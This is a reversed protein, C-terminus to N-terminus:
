RLWSKLDDDTDLIGDRGASWAVIEEGSIEGYVSDPIVCSADYNGDFVLQYPSGWPDIANGDADLFSLPNGQAKMSLFDLRNPNGAHSENGPGENAALVRMLLGNPNKLGYRQDHIVDSGLQPWKGYEKHYQRVASILVRIDSYALRTKKYHMWSFFGPVAISAIVLCLSLLFLWESRALGANGNTRSPM